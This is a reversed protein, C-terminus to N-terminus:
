NLFSSYPVFSSATLDIVTHVETYGFADSPGFLHWVALVSNMAKAVTSNHKDPPM